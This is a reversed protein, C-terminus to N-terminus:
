ELRRNDSDFYYVNKCRDCYTEKYQWVSGYITIFNQYSLAETKGCYPCHWSIEQPTMEIHVDTHKM